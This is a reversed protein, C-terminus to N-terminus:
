LSIVDHALRNMLLIGKSNQEVDAHPELGQWTSKQAHFSLNMNLKNDKYGLLHIEERVSPFKTLTQGWLLSRDPTGEWQSDQFIGCPLKNGAIQFPFQLLM